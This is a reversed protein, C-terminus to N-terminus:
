VRHAQTTFTEVNYGDIYLYELYEPRLIEEPEWNIHFGESIYPLIWELILFVKFTDLKKIKGDLAEIM